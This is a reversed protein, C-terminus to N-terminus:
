QSLPVPRLPAVSPHSGQKSANTGSKEKQKREKGDNKGKKNDRAGVRAAHTPKNRGGKNNGEM